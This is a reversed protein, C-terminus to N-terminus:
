KQQAELEVIRANLQQIQADMEKMAEVLVSVMSGYQIAKYGEDSTVVVQPVIPEVEQAVFGVQPGADSSEDKLEYTVGRLSRVKELADPITHINKKLRVDSDKTWDQDGGAKGRVYFKYSEM